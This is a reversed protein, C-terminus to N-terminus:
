YGRRDKLEKFEDTLVEQNEKVRRLCVLVFDMLPSIKASLWLLGVVIALRPDIDFAIRLAVAFLLLSLGLLLLFRLASWAVDRSYEQKAGRMGGRFEIGLKPM